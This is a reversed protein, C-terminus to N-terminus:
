YIKKSHKWSDVAEVRLLEYNQPNDNNMFNTFETWMDNVDHSSPVSDYYFSPSYETQDAIEVFQDPEVSKVVFHNREGIIVKDTNGEVNYTFVLVYPGNPDTESYVDTDDEVETIPQEQRYSQTPQENITSKTTLANAPGSKFNLLTKTVSIQTANIQEMIEFAEYITGKLEEVYVKIAAMTMNDLDKEIEDKRLM